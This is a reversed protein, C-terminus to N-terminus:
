SDEVIYRPDFYYIGEPGRFKLPVGDAIKLSQPWRSAVGVGKHYASVHDEGITVRLAEWKRASFVRWLGFAMVPVFSLRLRRKAHQSLADFTYLGQDDYRPYDLANVEVALQSGEM